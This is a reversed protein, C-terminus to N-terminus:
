RAAWNPDRGMLGVLRDLSPADAPVDVVPGFADGRMEETGPGSFLEGFGVAISLAADDVEFPQGTGRALDGGHVILENLVVTGAEAGSRDVGGTQTQGEYASPDQWADALDALDAVVVDRWGPELRGADGQPPPGQTASIDEKRAAKTFARTLGAVHEAVDGVTYTTCPTPADLQTDSVGQVLRAVARTTPGLDLIQNTEM